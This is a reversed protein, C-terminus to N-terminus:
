RTSATMPQTFQARLLAASSRGSTTRIGPRAMRGSTADVITAAANSAQSSVKVSEVVTIASAAVVATLRAACYM